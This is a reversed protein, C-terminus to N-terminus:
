VRGNRVDRIEQMRLHEEISTLLAVVSAVVFLFVSWAAIPFSLAIWPNNTLTFWVASGISGVFLLLALMALVRAVLLVFKFNVSKINSFPKM